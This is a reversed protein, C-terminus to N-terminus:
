LDHLSAQARQEFARAKQMRAVALAERLAAEADALRKPKFAFLMEGKLRHLEAEYFRGNTETEALGEEVAALADDLRGASRYTEALLARLLAADHTRWHDRARRPGRRDRGRRRGAGGAAASCGHIIGAMAAFLPFGRDSCLALAEEARLRASELDHRCVACLANLFLAFARRVYPAM